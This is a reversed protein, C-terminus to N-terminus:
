LEDLSDLSGECFNVAALYCLLRATDLHEVCADALGLYRRKEGGAENYMRSGVIAHWHLVRALSDWCFLGKWDAGDDLISLV